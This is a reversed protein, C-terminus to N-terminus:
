SSRMMREFSRCHYAHAHKQLDRSVAIVGSHTLVLALLLLFYVHRIQRLLPTRMSSSHRRGEGVAGREGLEVAGPAAAGFLTVFM